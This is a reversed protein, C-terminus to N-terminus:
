RKQLWGTLRNMAEEMPAASRLFCIRFYGEASQGFAIGPALGINAEDVLQLAAKM